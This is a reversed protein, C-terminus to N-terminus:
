YVCVRVCAHNSHKNNENKHRGWLSTIAKQKSSLKGEHFPPIKATENERGGTCTELECKERERKREKKKRAGEGSM